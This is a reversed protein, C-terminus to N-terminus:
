QAQINSDRRAVRLQLHKSFFRLLAAKSADFQRALGRVFVINRFLKCFPLSFAEKFLLLLNLVYIYLRVSHFQKMRKAVLHYHIDNVIITLQNESTHSSHLSYYQSLSPLANRRRVETGDERWSNRATKTAKARKGNKKVEWQSQRMTM